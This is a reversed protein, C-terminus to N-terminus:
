GSVPKRMGKGLALRDKDNHKRAVSLLTKRGVVYENSPHYLYAGEQSTIAGFGSPGLDISEVIDKIQDLSVDVCVIGAPIKLHSQPDEQYFLASYSTLLTNGAIGFYPEIWSSTGKNLPEIYWNYVTYDYVSEIEQYVLAGAERKYYPGFLRRDASYAYPKFVIAASFFSTNNNLIETLRRKLLQKDKPLSGSSLDAAVGEATNMVQRLIMDIRVAASRTLLQLDGKAQNTIRSKLSLHQYIMFTTVSFSAVCLLVLCWSVVRKM